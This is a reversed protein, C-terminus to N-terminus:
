QWVPHQILRQEAGKDKEHWKDFAYFVHDPDLLALWEWPKGARAESTSLAQVLPHPQLGVDEFMVPATYTKEVIIKDPLIRLFMATQGKMRRSLKSKAAVAKRDYQAIARDARDRRHLWDGLIRMTTRWDPGLQRVLCTRAIKACQEYHASEWGTCSRLMILDPNSKSLTQVEDRLVDFTPVDQLGLYDQKGWYSHAWQVIPTIGLSYLYDEMFLSVVRLDDRHVNRYKGPAVGVMQKFRRNFYYESTFGVNQAIEHVRDGTLLLLQKARKIRLGNIYDLPIQGTLEKFLQTYRWRPVAAEQALQEVTLPKQYHQQVYAISREVARLPDEASRGAANQRLLDGLMTEFRIHNAYRELPDTEDRRAYIEEISEVLRSFPTCVMEGTWFSQTAEEQQPHLPVRRFTLRYYELEREAACIYAHRGPEVIWCSEKGLCFRSSDVQLGGRGDITVIMTFDHSERSDQCTHSALVGREMGTLVYIASPYLQGNTGNTDM